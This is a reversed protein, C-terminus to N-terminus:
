LKQKEPVQEFLFIIYKYLFSLIEVSRNLTLSETIVEQALQFILAEQEEKAQSLLNHVVIILKWDADMLCPPSM